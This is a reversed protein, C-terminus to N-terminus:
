MILRMIDNFSVFLMLGILLVFGVLNIIIEYKQKIPKRRIGEVILLLTRGGDLAPIPLMNVVGLNISILALMDVVPQWGISAAQGIQDVIGVPGSLSNIPVRGTILDFLTLYILRAYSLTKGGAEKIVTFFNKEVPEVTFGPQLYRYEEGTAENIMAEGTEPDTIIQSDFSVDSLMLKEGDRIVEIEFTGNQTRAFEYFIDDMVFNVRGNIGVIQDGVVLGTDENTVSTLTNGAIDGGTAVLLVIALFGLLLNMVAGAVTVTIRRWVPVSQFSRADESEEDEGEMSVFGGIPLLRLAYTTEGKTFKLIRPGMGIAFENVKIGASKATIFHGLEHFFIVTGFVLVAILIMVVIDM